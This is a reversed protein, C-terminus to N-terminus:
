ATSGYGLSGRIRTLANKAVYKTVYRASREFDGDGKVLKVTPFGHPWEAVIQRYTIPEGQEHILLHLHPLGSKHRETVALYRMKSGTNKRLRKIAKTLLVGVERSREMFERIADLEHPDVQAKRLRTHARMLCLYQEEPSLTFTCFWTRSAARMEAVARVSWEVSRRRLCRECKRCRTHLIMRRFGGPRYRLDVSADYVRDNTAVIERTYPSECRGAIDWEVTALSLRRGTSRLARAQMHLLVIDSVM